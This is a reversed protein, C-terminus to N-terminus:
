RMDISHTLRARSSRRPPNCVSYELRYLGGLCLRFGRSLRGCVVWDFKSVCCVIMSGTSPSRDISIVKQTGSPEHFFQLQSMARPVRPRHVQSSEAVAPHSPKRHHGSCRTVGSSIAADVKASRSSGQRSDACVANHEGDAQPISLASYRHLGSLTAGAVM